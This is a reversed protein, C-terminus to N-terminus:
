LIDEKFIKKQHDVVYRNFFRDWKETSYIPDPTFGKFNSSKMEEICQKATIPETIEKRRWCGAFFVEPRPRGSLNLKDTVIYSVCTCAHGCHFCNMILLPLHKVKERTGPYYQARNM